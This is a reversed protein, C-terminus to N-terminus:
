ADEECESKPPAQVVEEFHGEIIHPNNEAAHTLAIGVAREIARENILAQIVEPTFPGAVDLAIESNEEADEEEEDSLGSDVFYEINGFEKVRRAEVHNDYLVTTDDGVLLLENLDKYYVAGALPQSEEPLLLAIEADPPLSQLAELLDKVFM